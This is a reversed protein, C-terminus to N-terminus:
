MPAPITLLIITAVMPAIKSRNMILMILPPKGRRRRNQHNQDTAQAKLTHQFGGYRGRAKGRLGQRNANAAAATSSAFRRTCKGGVGYYAQLLCM